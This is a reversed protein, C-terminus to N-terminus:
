NSCVILEVIVLRMFSPAKWIIIGGVDPLAVLNPNQRSFDINSIANAPTPIDEVERKELLDMVLFHISSNRQSVQIMIQYNNNNTFKQNDGKKIKSKQNIQFSRPMVVNFVKVFKNNYIRFRQPFPKFESNTLYKPVKYEILFGSSNTVLLIFYGSDKKQQNAVSRLYEPTDYKTKQLLNSRDNIDYLDDM